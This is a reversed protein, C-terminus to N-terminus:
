KKLVIENPGSKTLLVSLYSILINKCDSIERFLIVIHFNIDWNRRTELLTHNSKAIHGTVECWTNFLVAINMTPSVQYKPLFWPLTAARGQGLPDEAVAYYISSVGYPVCMCINHKFFFSVQNATIRPSRYLRRSYSKHLSLWIHFFPFQISFKHNTCYYGRANV